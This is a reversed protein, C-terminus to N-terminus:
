QYGSQKGDLKVVPNRTRGSDFRDNSLHALRLEGESRRLQQTLPDQDHYKICQDFARM